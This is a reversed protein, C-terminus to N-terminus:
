DFGKYRKHPGYHAQTRDHRRQLAFGLQLWRLDLRDGFEDQALSATHAEPRQDQPSNRRIGQEGTARFSVNVPATNVALSVVGPIGEVEDQKPDDDM